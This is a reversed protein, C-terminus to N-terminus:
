KTRWVRVGGEVTRAAFVFGTRRQAQDRSGSIFGATKGNVFFSEGVKLEDFPYIRPRGENTKTPIPVGKEIRIVTNPKKKM